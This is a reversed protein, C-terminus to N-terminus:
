LVCCVNLAETAAALASSTVGNVQSGSPQQSDFQSAEISSSYYAAGFGSRGTVEVSFLPPTADIVRAETDGLDAYASPPPPTDAAVVTAAAVGPTRPASTATATAATTSTTSTTAKTQSAEVDSLDASDAYASPPPLAAIGESDDGPPLEAVGGANDGSPLAAVGGSNAGSQSSQDSELLATKGESENVQSNGESGDRRHRSEGRSARRIAVEDARM